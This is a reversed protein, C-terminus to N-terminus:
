PEIEGFHRAVIGIDRMKIKWDEYIDWNPSAPPISEGFHRGVLGVDRMDCSGDPWGDVGTIDGAISIVM